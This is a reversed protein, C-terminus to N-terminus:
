SRSEDPIFNSAQYPENMALILTLLVPAVFAYKWYSYPNSKKANMKLIRQKILSQNYNTTITLPKNYTAIKLLNLQYGKKEQQASKSILLADTQYEINKEVEKRFLWVFPNFWMLIVAIEALLLDVSHRQKVHMKEHALIQEYTEFDYSDPHIFIYNFFSCPESQSTLNVIVGDETSIKDENKIAKSLTTLIQAILNLSLILVGFGYICLLWFVIGRTPRETTSAIAADKKPEETEISLDESHDLQVQIEDNSAIKEPDNADFDVTFSEQTPTKNINEESLDSTEVIETELLNSIYGQNEVLEPLSIFPLAVALILCFLLFFRNLAFFSEKELFLKYFALLIVIVLSSKILLVFM